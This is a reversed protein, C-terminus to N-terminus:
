SRIRGLLWRSRMVTGASACRWVVAWSSRTTEISTREGHISTPSGRTVLEDDEQVGEIRYHTGGRSTAERVIERIEFEPNGEYHVVGLKDCGPPDENVRSAPSDASPLDPAGNAPSWDTPSCASLSALAALLALSRMANPLKM